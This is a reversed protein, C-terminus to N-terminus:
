IAAKKDELLEKKKFQYVLPWSHIHACYTPFKMYMSGNNSVLGPHKALNSNVCDGGTWQGPWYEPYNKAFNAFSMKEIIADAKAVDVHLLGLAYMGQVYQWIGGNEHTGAEFTDSVKTETTRVGLVENKSLRKTVEEVIKLRQELPIEDIMLTYLQSEIHMHEDGMSLTENYYARKAFNRNGLDKIFANLQQERYISIREVLSDIAEKENTFEPNNSAKKLEVILQKLVVIAMSANYHSEATPYYITIPQENWIQDNWDANLMKVLGHPGVGIEDNLYDFAVKLKELVSGSYKIRKPYFVTEEKLFGYDQTKELYEAVAWFVHLQLDSPNWLNPVAYGYGNVNYHFYGNPNMQKLVFRIISKSLDPNFYNAPLSYHLHDRAVANLGWKYDYTMGQPIFTEEFYDNYNASAELVYANWYQERKIIKNKQYSFDPLINKWAIRFKTDKKGKSFISKSIKDLSVNDYTFGIVFQLTKTEGSKLNFINQASVTSTNDQNDIANYVADNDGKIFLKPPYFDYSSAEEKSPKTITKDTQTEFSAIVYNTNVKSLAKYSIRKENVMQYNALISESYQINKTKNGTNTLKITILLAPEGTNIRQSPVTAITRECSIEKIIQLMFNAFGTGFEKKANCAIPSNLGSLKYEKTDIIISAQTAPTKNTAVNIRGWARRLTYLDFIGSTHVFSTIGYNGLIFWPDEPYTIKEGDKTTVQYPIQGTYNFIPLGVKDSDWHGIVNHRTTHNKTKM